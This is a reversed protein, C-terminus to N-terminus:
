FQKARRVFMQRFIHKHLANGCLRSTAIARGPSPVAPKSEKMVKIQLCVIDPAPVKRPIRCLGTCGSLKFYMLSSTKHKSYLHFSLSSESQPELFLAFSTWSLYQLCHTNLKRYGTERWVTPAPSCGNPSLRFSPLKTDRTAEPSM